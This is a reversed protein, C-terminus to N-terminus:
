AMINSPKMRKRKINSESESTKRIIWSYRRARTREPLTSRNGCRSADEAAPETPNSDRSEVESYWCIDEIGGKAERLGNKQKRWRELGTKNKWKKAQNREEKNKHLDEQYGKEEDADDKKKKKTKSITQVPHNSATAKQICSPSFGHSPNSRINWFRRGSRWKRSSIIRRFIWDDSWRMLIGDDNLNSLWGNSWLDPTSKTRHNKRDDQINSNRGNQVFTSDSPFTKDSEDRGWRRQKSM